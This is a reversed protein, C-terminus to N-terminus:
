HDREIIRGLTFEKADVPDWEDNEANVENNSEDFTQQQPIRRQTRFNWEQNNFKEGASQQHMSNKNEFNVSGTGSFARM